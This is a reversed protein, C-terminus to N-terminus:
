DVEVALADRESKIAYWRSEEDRAADGATELAELRRQLTALSVNVKTVCSRHLERVGMPRKMERLVDIVEVEKPAAPTNEDAVWYYVGPTPYPRPFPNPGMQLIGRKVLTGIRRIAPTTTMGMGKLDSVLESRKLAYPPTGDTPCTFKAVHARIEEDSLKPPTGREFETSRWRGCGWDPRVMPFAAFGAPTNQLVTPPNIRCTSTEAHRHRCNQCTKSDM